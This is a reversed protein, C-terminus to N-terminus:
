GSAPSSMPSAAAQEVPLVGAVCSGEDAPIAGAAAGRGVNMANGVGVGSEEGVGAGMEAEAGSGMGVAVRAGSGFASSDEPRHGM